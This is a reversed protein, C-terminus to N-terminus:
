FLFWQQNAGGNYPWQEISTGWDTSSGPVDLVQGSYVNAIIYLNDQFGPNAQYIDWLQNDGGNFPWQEIRTGWGNSFGPVDLVLGSNVNQIVFHGNYPVLNWEQNSGGNFPWQEVLTGWGTSFRPVDLVQGSNHNALRIQYQAPIQNQATAPLAGAMSFLMAAGICM